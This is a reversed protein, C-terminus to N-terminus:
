DDFLRLLSYAAMGLWKFYREDQIRIIPHVLIM